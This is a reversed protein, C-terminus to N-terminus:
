LLKANMTSKTLWIDGNDKKSFKVDANLVGNPQCFTPIAQNGQVVFYGKKTDLSVLAKTNDTFTVIAANATAHKVVSEVVKNANNDLTIAFNM